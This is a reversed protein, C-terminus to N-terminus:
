IKPIGLLARPIIANNDVNSGVYGEKINLSSNNDGLTIQRTLIARNISGIIDINQGNQNKKFRIEEDVYNAGAHVKYRFIFDEYNSFDLTSVNSNPSYLGTGSNNWLLVPKIDKERIIKGNWEQPPLPESGENLMMDKGNNYYSIRIFKSNDPTTFTKPVISYDVYSIFEKNSNYFAINRTLSDSVCSFSYIKNEEVEIYDSTNSATSDALSGSTNLNKSATINIDKFMNSSKEYESKLLDAQPNTIHSSPNYIYFKKPIGYEKKVFMPKIVYNNFSYDVDMYIRMSVIKETINIFGNEQSPLSISIGSITILEWDRNDPKTGNPFLNYAYEGVELYEDFEIERWYSSTSTGNNTVIGNSVNITIGSLKYIKNKIYLENLNDQNEKKLFIAENNTINRNQNYTYYKNISDRGNKILLSVKLNNFVTGKDAVIDVRERKLSASLGTIYNNKDIQIFESGDNKQFQVSFGSPIEASDYFVKAFWGDEGIKLNDDRFFNTWSTATGNLTMIGDKISYTVGNKTTESTDPMQFINVSEEYMKRAYNFTSGDGMSVNGMETYIEDVRNEFEDNDVKGDFRKNTNELETNTEDVIRDVEAKFSDVDDLVFDALHSKIQEANYGERTPRDPLAKASKKRIKHLQEDTIKNIAM